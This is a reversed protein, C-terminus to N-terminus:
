NKIENSILLEALNRDGKKIQTLQEESINRLYIDAKRYSDEPSRFVHGKQYKVLSKNEKLNM